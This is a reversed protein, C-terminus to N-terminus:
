NDKYVKINNEYFRRPLSVKYHMRYLKAVKEKDLKTGAIQIIIFHAGFTVAKVGTDVCGNRLYFNYRRTMIGKDENPGAFDPNEVEGIVSDANKYYEKVAGIIQSGAGKCRYKELVALYDWLYDNNHKLFFAYGVTKGNYFAGLCEYTGALMGRIILFLPRRENVPFEKKLSMKYIAITRRINLKKIELKNNMSIMNGHYINTRLGMTSQNM